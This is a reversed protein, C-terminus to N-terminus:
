AKFHGWLLVHANRADQALFHLQPLSLIGTSFWFSLFDSFSNLGM